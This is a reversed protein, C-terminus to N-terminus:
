PIERGQLTCSQTASACRMDLGEATLVIDCMSSDTFAFKGQVFGRGNSELRGPCTWAVGQDDIQTFALNCGTQTLVAPFSGNFSARAGYCSGTLLWNGAISACSGGDALPRSGGMRTTGGTASAGGTATAGGTASAGGASRTNGATSTGGMASTGGTASAGGAATVGGTATTGATETADGTRTVGGSAGAGGSAITDGTDTMGGAGGAPAAGVDPAYADRDLRTGDPAADRGGHLSRSCAHGALVSSMLVLVLLKQMGGNNRMCAGADVDSM